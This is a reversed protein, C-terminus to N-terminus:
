CVTSWNTSLNLPKRKSQRRWECAAPAPVARRSWGRAGCAGNDCTVVLVCPLQARNFM